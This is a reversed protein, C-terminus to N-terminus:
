SQQGHGHKQIKEVKQFGGGRRSESSRSFRKEAAVMKAPGEHTGGRDPGSVWPSPSGSLLTKQMECLADRLADKDRLARMQINRNKTKRRRFQRSVTPVPAAGSGLTTQLIHSQLASM